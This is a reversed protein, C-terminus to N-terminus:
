SDSSNASTLPLITFFSKLFSTALTQSSRFFDRCDVLALSQCPVCITYIDSSYDCQHGSPFMFTGPAV